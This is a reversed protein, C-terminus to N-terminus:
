VHIQQATPTQPAGSDTLVATTKRRKLRLALSPLLAQDQEELIRTQTHYQIKFVSKFDCLSSSFGHGLKAHWQNVQDTYCKGLKEKQHCDLM